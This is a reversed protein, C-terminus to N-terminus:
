LAGVGTPTASKKNINISVGCNIYYSFNRYYEVLTKSNTSNTFDKQGMAEAIFKINKKGLCVGGGFTVGANFPNFEYGRKIESNQRGKYKYGSLYDATPGAKVFGIRAIKFKITPSLTLYYLSFSCTEEGVSIVEGMQNVVYIREKIRYGKEIISIDTNFEFQKKKGWTCITPEITFLFGIKQRGHQIDNKANEIGSVNAGTKISVSKFFQGYSTLSLTFALLYLITRM